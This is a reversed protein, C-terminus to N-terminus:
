KKQNALKKGYDKDAEKLTLGEGTIGKCTIKWLRCQTYEISCHFYVVEYLKDTDISHPLRTYNTVYTYGSGLYKEVGKKFERQTIM